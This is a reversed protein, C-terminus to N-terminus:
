LSLIMDILEPQPFMDSKDTRCNTHNILGFVKGDYIDKNFEFAEQNKRLMDGMGEKINIGHKESLHILLARLSKLQEDSYVQFAHFGRFPEDLEYVQKSEVTEGFWTKWVGNKKKLGGASCIEISISHEKMYFSGGRGIHWGYYEDNIARIVKGDYQTNKGDQSIGGIVYNTGVRGRNDKAWGDVTRYPNHRGATHHLMIYEKSTEKNVYQGPPLHYTEIWNEYVERDTDLNLELPDFGLKKWTLPGVIGDALLGNKQQYSKVTRSTIQGFIGDIELGLLHQLSRVLEGSDGFKIVMKKKTKKM